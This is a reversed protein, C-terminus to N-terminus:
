SVVKKYRGIRHNHWVIEGLTFAEDGIRYENAIELESYSTLPLKNWGEAEMLMNEKITTLQALVSARNGHLGFERKALATVSKGSSHRLGKGELSVAGIIACLRVFEIGRPTSIVTAM